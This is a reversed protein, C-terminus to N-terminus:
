NSGDLQVPVSSDDDNLSSKVTRMAQGGHRRDCFGLRNNAFREAARAVTFVGVRGGFQRRPHNDSGHQRQAQEREKPRMLAVSASGFTRYENETLRLLVVASRMM